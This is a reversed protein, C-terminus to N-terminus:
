SSPHGENVIEPDLTKRDADVMAAVGYSYVTTERETNGDAVSFKKGNSGPVETPPGYPWTTGSKNNFDISEIRDVQGQAQWVISSPEPIHQRPPNM